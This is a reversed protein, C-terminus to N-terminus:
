RGRWVDAPHRYLTAGEYSFDFMSRDKGRGIHYAHCYRCRYVEYPRGDRIQELNYAAATAKIPNSYRTKEGCSRERDIRADGKIKMTKGKPPRAIMLVGAM